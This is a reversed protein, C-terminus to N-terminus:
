ASSEEQDTPQSGSAHAVNHQDSSEEANVETDQHAAQLPDPIIVSLQTLQTIIGTLQNRIANLALIRERIAERGAGEMRRIQDDTFHDLYAVEDQGTLPILPTLTVPQLTANEILSLSHLGISPTQLNPIHLSPLNPERTSMSTDQSQTRTLTPTDAFGGQANLQRFLPHMAPPINQPAPAIPHAQQPQLPVVPPNVNQQNAVNTPTTELVSRRCTPCTQQRELWSRLCRFHFIHGCPLIKAAHPQIQGPIPAVAEMEERCIICTKDSAALDTETANPYRENMNATAKRYQILDQVRKWFSRFTLYLDRIIHLPLGYYYVIVSFFATYTLLKMFDLGLELYFIYMSKEEWPTESRLDITHLWYKSYVEILKCLLIMYEFGFIIMMGPGFYYTQYIAIGLWLLDISGLSLMMINMKIHFPWSLNPTQDMFDVRDSSIWHFIKVFLLAGFLLSFQADFEDRFITMALFTETVAFWAREYLHEIELARLPGFFLRQIFKGIWIAWVLVM